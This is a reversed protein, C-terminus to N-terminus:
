GVLASVEEETLGLQLLKARGSAKKTAIEALVDEQSKYSTVEEADEALLDWYAQVDDKVSQEPEESFYLELTRSAQNGSYHAGANAKMWAEVAQLNVNFEKWELNISYM